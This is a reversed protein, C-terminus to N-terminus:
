PIDIWQQVAPPEQALSRVEQQIHLRESVDKHGAVNASNILLLLRLWYTGFGFFGTYEIWFIWSFESLFDPRLKHAFFATIGITMLTASLVQVRHRRSAWATANPLRALAAKLRPGGGYWVSALASLYLLGASPLHLVPLLGPVCYEHEKPDCVMPFLAVGFAFFGAISHIRDDTNDLGRYAILTGGLFALFAVFFTRLLGGDRAVFYYDSLSYQLRYGMFAGAAATALPVGILAGCVLYRLLRYTQSVGRDSFDVNAQM